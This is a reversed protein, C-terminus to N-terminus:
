FETYGQVWLSRLTFSFRIENIRPIDRYGCPVGAGDGGLQNYKVTYGQVWLSRQHNASKSNTLMPIDRYGCPVRRFELCSQESRRYIGTGVPFACLRIIFSFCGVPIDRYGCPVSELEKNLHIKHRYIGTGM